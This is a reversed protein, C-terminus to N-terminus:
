FTGVRRDVKLLKVPFVQERFTMRRWDVHLVRLRPVPYQSAVSEPFPGRPVRALFRREIRLSKWAMTM